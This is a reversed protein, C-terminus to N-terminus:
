CRRAAEQNLKTLSTLRRELEMTKRMIVDGKRDPQHARYLVKKNPDILYFHTISNHKNLYQYISNLSSYSEYMGSLLGIITEDRVMSFNVLEQINQQVSIEDDFFSHVEDFKEQMNSQLVNDAFDRVSKVTIMFTLIMILSFAVLLPLKIKEANHLRAFIGSFM